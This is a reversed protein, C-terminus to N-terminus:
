GSIAALLLFSDVLLLPLNHVEAVTAHFPYGKFRSLSIPRSGFWILWGALVFHTIWLPPPIDKDCFVTTTFAESM